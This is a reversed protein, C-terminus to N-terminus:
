VITMQEVEVELFARKLEKNQIELEALHIRLEHIVESSPYTGNTHHCSLNGSVEPM